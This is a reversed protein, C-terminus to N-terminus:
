CRHFSVSVKPLVDCAKVRELTSVDKGLSAFTVVRGNFFDFFVNVPM